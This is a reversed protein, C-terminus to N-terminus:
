FGSKILEWEKIMKERHSPDSPKQFLSGETYSALPEWGNEKGVTAMVEKNTHGYGWETVIYEASADALWADLFDYAKQESGPADKMMTYGCVWTSSGEKTDRKFVTEPADDEWSLTFAVENWTWELLIEGSKMLAAGEAGDAHYQRVNKHVKRLFDSAKKFDEDTAKNWDMVGVALYGLAYADDVNDIISVRGQFKPDAFVYLSSAEEASVEESNYTLATAGWDIPLAWQVGDVQFGEMGAFGPDVKDFNSLRSTDIPKIIGANRWKVVSQSCPHGLDARFGARVKQFAEEEDSFFSYTPADGYKKMYDQFFMEDEYGGWDFVVLESDAAFAPASFSLTAVAVLYSLSKRMKGLEKKFNMAHSEYFVKIQISDLFILLTLYLFIM